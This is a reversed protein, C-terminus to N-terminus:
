SLCENPLLPKLGSAVSNTSPTSPKKSPSMSVSDPKRKGGSELPPIALSSAIALKPSSKGSYSTELLPRRRASKVGDSDGASPTKSSLGIQFGTSIPPTLNDGCSSDIRTNM